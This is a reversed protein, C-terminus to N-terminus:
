SEQNSLPWGVDRKGQEPRKDLVFVPQDTLGFAGHAVCGDVEQIIDEPFPGVEDEGEEQKDATRVYSM